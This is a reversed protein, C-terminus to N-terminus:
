PQTTHTPFPIPFATLPFSSFIMHSPGSAALFTWQSLSFFLITFSSLNSSPLTKAWTLHDTSSPALAKHLHVKAMSVTQCQFSLNAAKTGPVGCKRCLRSVSNNCSASRCCIKDGGQVDGLTLVTPCELNVEGVHQGLQVLASKSRVDTEWQLHSITGVRFLAHLRQLKATAGAEHLTAQSLLTRLDPVCCLTWWASAKNRCRQNPLSTTLKLLAVSAKQDALTTEDFNWVIPALFDGPLLCCHKHAPACWQGDHLCQTRDRLPEQESFPDDQPVDLNNLDKFDESSLLPMLQAGFDYCTIDFVRPPNSPTIAQMQFPETAAGFQLKRLHDLQSIRTTRTPAFTQGLSNAETAWSSLEACMQFPVRHDNCLKSLKTEVCLDTLFGTSAIPATTALLTAVPPFASQESSTSAADNDVDHATDVDVNNNPALAQNTITPPPAKALQALWQRCHPSKSLHQSVHPKSCDCRPNPCTRKSRKARQM